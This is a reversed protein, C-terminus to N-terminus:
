RPYASRDPAPFEANFAQIARAADFPQLARRFEQVRQELRPTWDDRPLATLSAGALSSAEELEGQQVLITALDLRVFWRSKARPGLLRLAEASYEHALRPEGLLMFCSGMYAPLKAPTFFDIGARRAEPRAQEVAQEARRLATRTAVADGLGAHLEAELAAIWAHQTTIDASRAARAAAGQAAQLAAQVAGRHAELYSVNALVWAAVADDGAEAAAKLAVHYYAEAKAPDHLDFSVTGAM